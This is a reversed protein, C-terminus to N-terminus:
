QLVSLFKSLFLNGCWTCGSNSLLGQNCLAIFFFNKMFFLSWLTKGSIPFPPLNSKKKDKEKFLDYMQTIPNLWYNHDNNKIFFM